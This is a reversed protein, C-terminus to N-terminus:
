AAPQPPAGPPPAQQAAMAQQRANYKQIIAEKNPYEIIKLLDEADLIQKDFFREAQADRKAKMFPLATGTTIRVDLSSKLPVQKPTAFEGPGGQGPVFESYTAVKQTEPQGMGDVVPEGLENMKPQDEVMFKFYQDAVGDKGTLRVVRPLTYYQLIRSVMLQGVQNLYQDLNRAKARLRTQSAETLQSIAEGSLQSKDLAGQSIENQGSIKAFVDSMFYQMMNQIFPPPPVGQERRAEGGKKKLLIMGPENTINDVDVQAESDIVWVPNCMIILYDMMYSSLKNIIDQPSKLTMIEGDGWFARPVVDNILRAYPFKGDDYKIESDELLIGGATVIKRGKPYKKVDQDITQSEGTQSDVVTEKKSIVEDSLVYVCLKLVLDPNGQQPSRSDAVMMRNDVPSKFQFEQAEDLYSNFSIADSLDPKVKDAKDPYEERIESIDVPEAVCFFKGRRDNVDRAQPDPFVHAPDVTEFVYDGLGDKLSDIWPIYGIATGVVGADILSEAVIQNYGDRDWKSSIVQQLIQAFEYDTPDEPIATVQPLPDTLIPLINRLHSTIVNIVESHRYSPRKTTWQDGRFYKFYTCWDKDYRSRAKKAKSFLKEALRVASREEESQEQKAVEGSSKTQSHEPIM